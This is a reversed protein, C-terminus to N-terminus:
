AMRCIVRRYDNFQLHSIRSMVEDPVKFAFHSSLM